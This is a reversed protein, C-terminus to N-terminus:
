VGGVVALQVCLLPRCGGGHGVRRKGDQGEGVGEEEEGGEVEGGEVEVGVVGGGGFGEVWAGGGM